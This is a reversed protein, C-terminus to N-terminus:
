KMLIMMMMLTGKPIFVVVVVRVEMLNAVEVVVIVRASVSVIAIAEM